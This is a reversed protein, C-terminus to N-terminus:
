QIGIKLNRETARSFNHCMSCDIARTSNVHKDHISFGPSNRSAHCQACITTLPAKIAYGMAPLNMRTTSGHCATCALVSAKTPIQHNLLQYEDTTETTYAAGPMGMYTLGDQVALDYNGLSFYTAVKPTVLKGNALPQNATKYKFPYLKTGAPDNIAGLPRSVKYNGTAPDLVAADFANNGWSTGNWFLYKPIQNGLKVQTPEYRNNVTSWEPLRWDRNMETLETPNTPTPAVDTADKAYRPMHCTQCAVRGVHHSTDLTTHSTTMNLKTPHCNTSSCSM